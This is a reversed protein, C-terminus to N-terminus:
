LIKPHRDDDGSNWLFNWDCMQEHSVMNDGPYKQISIDGIFFHKIYIYIYIYLIIYYMNYYIM